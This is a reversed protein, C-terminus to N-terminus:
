ENTGKYKEGSAEKANDMGKLFELAKCKIEEETLPQKCKECLGHVEGHECRGKFKTM